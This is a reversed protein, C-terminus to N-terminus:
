VLNMNEYGVSFRVPLDQLRKAHAQKQGRTKEKRACWEGAGGRTKGDGRGHKFSSITAMTYISSALLIAV